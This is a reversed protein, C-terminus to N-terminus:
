KVLLAVVPSKCLVIEKIVVASRRHGEVVLLLMVNTMADAVQNCM